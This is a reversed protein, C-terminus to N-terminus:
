PKLIFGQKMFFFIFLICWKLLALKQTLFSKAHRVISQRIRHPSQPLLNVDREARASSKFYSFASRLFQEHRSQLATSSEKADFQAVFNTAWKATLWCESVLAKVSVYLTWGDLTESCILSRLWWGGTGERWLRLGHEALSSHGTHVTLHYGVTELTANLTTAKMMQSRWYMRMTDWEHPNVTGNKSKPHVETVSKLRMREPRTFRPPWSSDM